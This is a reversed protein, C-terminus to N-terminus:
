RHRSRAPSSAGEGHSRDSRASGRIFTRPHAVHAGLLEGVVEDVADAVVLGVSEPRPEPSHVDEEHVVDLEKLALLLRLLLEEVGEVGEVVAALLDHDGAVPRRFCSTVSSSRRRLRKSHPSIVSTWGGSSSVRM